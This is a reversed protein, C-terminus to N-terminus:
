KHIEPPEASGFLTELLLRVGFQVGARYFELNYLDTVVAAESKYADLADRQEASLLAELQGSLRQANAAHEAFITSDPTVQESPYYEGNYIADIVSM